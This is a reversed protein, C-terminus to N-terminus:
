GRFGEMYGGPTFAAALQARLRGFLGGDSDTGNVPNNGMGVYPSAFQGKPDPSIWRGFRADYMRLHFSNWGTLSDKESYQGQYGFRYNEQTMQRTDIPLGFPYYDGGSVVTGHVQTVKFDDFYVDVPSGTPEENSLFTYVYSPENVTFSTALREHAVNQGYERAASSLRVYGGNMLTYNRDFILWNLYAKPGGTSGSTNVLGGFGFSSTSTNYGTGDVVVGVIHASVQGILTNFAATWNASNTDVYKAFVELKVTDGPMVSLSRAVGYKENASGNLREAYAGGPSLNEILM